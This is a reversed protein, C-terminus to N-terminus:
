PFWVQEVNGSINNENRVLPRFTKREDDISLAHYVNDVCTPEFNYSHHNLIKDLLTDLCKIQPTGLASVTDWVGMFKIKVKQNSEFSVEPKNKADTNRTKYFDMATDINEQFIKDSLIKEDGNDDKKGTHQTVLGCYEIM